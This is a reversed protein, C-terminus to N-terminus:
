QVDLKMNTEQAARQKRALAERLSYLHSRRSKLSKDLESCLSDFIDQRTSKEDM